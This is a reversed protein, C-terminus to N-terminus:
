DILVSYEKSVDKIREIEKEFSEQNMDTFVEFATEHGGAWDCIEITKYM